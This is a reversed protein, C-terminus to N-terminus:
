MRLTRKKRLHQVRRRAENMRASAGMTTMMLSLENLTETYGLSNYGKIGPAGPGGPNAGPDIIGNLIEEAVIALAMHLGPDALSIGSPIGATYAIRVQYIDSATRVGGCGRCAASGVAAVDLYGFGDERIRFCGDLEQLGCSGTGGGYLITVSEVSQIRRWPMVITRKAQLGPWMWTGTVTTPVLPSQVEIVMAQEAITFAAQRQTATGTYLPEPVFGFFLDDTLIVPTLQVHEQSM